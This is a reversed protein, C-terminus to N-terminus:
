YDWSIKEEKEIIHGRPWILMKLLKLLIKWLKDRKNDIEEPYVTFDPLPVIYVQYPSSISKTRLVNYIQECYFKSVLKKLFGGEKRNILGININLAHIHKNYSKVKDNTDINSQELYIENTNFCPKQFLEKIYSELRYEYLYPIAKSVTFM